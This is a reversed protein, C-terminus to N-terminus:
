VEGRTFVSVELLISLRQTMIKNGERERERGWHLRGVVVGQSGM